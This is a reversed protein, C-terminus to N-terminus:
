ISVSIDFNEILSNLYSSISSSTSKLNDLDLKSPQQQRDLPVIIQELSGIVRQLEAQKEQLSASLETVAKNSEGSPISNIADVAEGLKNYAQAYLSKAYTFNNRANLTNTITLPCDNILGESTVCCSRAAVLASRITSKASNENKYSSVQYTSRNSITFIQQVFHFNAFVLISATMILAYRKRLNSRSILIKKINLNGINM